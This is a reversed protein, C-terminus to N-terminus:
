SHLNGKFSTALLGCLIPHADAVWLKYMYSGVQLECFALDWELCSCCRWECCLCLQIILNDKNFFQCVEKSSSLKNKIKYLKDPWWSTDITPIALYQYSTDWWSFCIPAAQPTLRKRWHNWTVQQIKLLKKSREQLLWHIQKSTINQLIEWKM